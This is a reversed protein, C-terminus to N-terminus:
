REDPKRRRLAQLRDDGSFSRNTKPFIDDRDTIKKGIQQGVANFHGRSVDIRESPKAGVSAVNM